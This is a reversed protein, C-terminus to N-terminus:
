QLQLSTQALTELIKEICHLKIPALDSEPNWVITRGIDMIVLQLPSKPLLAYFLLYTPFLNILSLLYYTSSKMLLCPQSDVSRPFNTLLHKTSPPWVSPLLDSEQSALTVLFRDPHHFLAILTTNATPFPLVLFAHVSHYPLLLITQWCFVQRQVGLRNGVNLGTSGFPLHLAFPIFM